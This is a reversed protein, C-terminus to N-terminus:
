RHRNATIAVGVGSTCCLIGFDHTSDSVSRATLNAFDPYDVSESGHTGFDTLEYGAAQLHAVIADKLEVGGHDAGLAIRLSKQSM